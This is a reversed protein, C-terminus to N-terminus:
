LGCPNCTEIQYNPDYQMINYNRFRNTFIIGPEAFNRANKCILKYLALTDVDYEIKHGSYEREIHRIVSKGTEYGTIVDNMFDDDIELSLNAKNIETEKSKITIFAEADKHWVDISMLLAGKRSGGQSICSTTQDFLKMFPIIGDSEYFEKVGTGKPRIHSLSLGQGGQAKYTMAIKTNVDM